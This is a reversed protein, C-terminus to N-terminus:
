GTSLTPAGLDATTFLVKASRYKGVCIGDPVAESDGIGGSRTDPVNDADHLIRFMSGRRFLRAM